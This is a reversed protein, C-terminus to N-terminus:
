HVTSYVTTLYKTGATNVAYFDFRHKGVALSLSTQLTNTNYISYKKVGDVWVEMRSITGAVTAAAQVNVPSTVTSGNAPSCVHVGPSTPPTCTGSAAVTFSFSQHQLLNDPAASFIDAHHGGAALAQTYDFWAFKDWGNYQESRKIGDVWLEVKRLPEFFNSSFAFHVPSSVTSGNAPSCLHFGHSSAPASCTPFNAGSTTNLFAFLRTLNDGSNLDNKAGTVLDPKSDRNFDGVVLNGGEAFYQSPVPTSWPVDYESYGSGTNLLFVIFKTGDSKSGLMAIDALGDGNYDAVPMDNGTTPGVNGVPISTPYTQLTLTRSTAGYLVGVGNNWPAILDSIGDRNVDEAIFQFIGTTSTFLVKDTFGRTGNGYAIHIVDTNCTSPNCNSTNDFAIDANGDADFDGVQLSYLGNNAPITSVMMPASFGGQGNGYMVAVGYINSGNLAVAIDPNGDHDFDAVAPASFALGPLTIQIPSRLTGDGNGLYVLLANGTIIAVDTKGDKNFDATVVYDSYQHQFPYAYFVPPKFTGNGNALQVGFGNPVVRGNTEILDPVGDGNLDATHLYYAYDNTVSNQQAFSPSSQALATASFALLLTFLIHHLYRVM